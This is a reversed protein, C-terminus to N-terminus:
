QSNPSGKWTGRRAIGRSREAAASGNGGKDTEAAELSTMRFRFAEELLWADGAVLTDKLPLTRHAWIAANEASDLEAIEMLLQERLKESEKLPM